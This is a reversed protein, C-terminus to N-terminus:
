SYKRLIHDETMMQHLSAIVNVTNQNEDAYLKSWNAKAVQFFHTKDSSSIQMLEALVNLSEGEGVAIDRALTEANHDVFKAVDAHVLTKQQRCGLTGFTIGFTQNGFLGNTTAGLVKPALGNKGKWIETGIGCGIDNDAMAVSSGALLLTSILIKRLM